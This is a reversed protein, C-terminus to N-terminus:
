AARGRAEIAGAVPRVLETNKRAAIFEPRPKKAGYPAGLANSAANYVIFANARPMPSINSNSGHMINCDFLVVTGAPGVPSEIGGLRALESLSEADPVGYEQKRLSQKYHNEPTEGICPVFHKHSGSMLMLPGNIANNDTLLISASIARMSPMGDEVHWTEFDSHWYFEKGVFGPKYNMRSQHVYLDDDLLFKVVGAIREDAVLRAFLDSQAHAAFISRVADGGPEAIITEPDLHGPNARLSELEGQLAKIEWPQFLDRLVVFGRRNFRDHQAKTLPASKSWPAYAVPERRKIWATKQAARSPYLDQTMTEAPTPISM